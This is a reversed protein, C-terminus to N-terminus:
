RKYWWYECYTSKLNTANRTPNTVGIQTGEERSLVRGGQSRETDTYYWTSTDKFTVSTLNTCNYFARYSILTVGEGITVNKLNSCGSFASDGILTVSDPIIINTLGDCNYFVWDCIYIMSDPITVSTINTCNYFAGWTMEIVGDPITIDGTASPYAILITKGKSYLIKGDDSTSFNENNESVNFCTLNPCLRFQGQAISTVSEPITVSALSKCNTFAVNGISTVGNPIVISTINSCDLFTDNKIATLGTTNSFDLAIMASTNKKMTSAISSLTSSSMTGTVALKHEGAPLTSITNVIDSVYVTTPTIDVKVYAEHSGKVILTITYKRGVTLLGDDFTINGVNQSEELKFETNLATINAGGVQFEWSGNTFKFADYVDGYEDTGYYTYTFEYSNDDLSIHKWEGTEDITANGAIHTLDYCTPVKPAAYELDTPFSTTSPTMTMVDAGWVTMVYNDPDNIETGLAIVYPKYNTLNLTDSDTLMEGSANESNFWKIETKKLKSVDLLLEFTTDTVTAAVGTYYQYEDDVPYSGYVAYNGTQNTDAIKINGYSYLQYAQSSFNFDGYNKSAEVQEDTLFVVSFVPSKTSGGWAGSIDEINLKYSYVGETKILWKDNYKGSKFDAANQAPDTVDIEKTAGYTSTYYWNKTDEFTISALNDCDLFAYGYVCFVNEPIVVSTLNDCYAFANDAIYVVSESITIDGAASPYALLVYKNKDYLIKSDESTSYNENNETINITTLKDCDWFASQKIETVSDPITISTLNACEFFAEYDIKTVSEPIIISILNGCNQFAFDGISTLGTTGSLDLNIKASENDIMATRVAALIDSTMTGSVIIKYEYASLGAITEALKSADCNIDTKVQELKPYFHSNDEIKYPFVIPEEETDEDWKYWGTITYGAPITEPVFEALDELTIESNCKFTTENYYNGEEVAEYNEYFYVTADPAEVEKISTSQPLTLKVEEPIEGLLGASVIYSHCTTENYLEYVFSIDTDSCSYIRYGILDNFKREWLIKDKATDYAVIYPITDDLDGNVDYDTSGAYIVYKDEFVIDNFYSSLNRDKAPFTKPISDILTGTSVDIGIVCAERNDTLQNIFAGCLFINEDINKTIKEFSFNELIISEKKETGSTGDIFLVKTHNKDDDWTLIVYTDSSEHYILDYSWFTIPYESNEWLVKTSISTYSNITIEVLGIVTSIQDNMNYEPASYVYKEVLVCFTNDKKQVMSIPTAWNNEDGLYIDKYISLGEIGLVFASRINESSLKEGCILIYKGTDIGKRIMINRPNDKFIPTQEESIEGEPNIFTYYPLADDLACDANSYTQRGFLMYGDKSKKRTTFHGALLTKGPEQSLSIKWIKDRLVEDLFTKVNLIVEEGNYIFYYIYGKDTTDTESLSINKGADFIKYDALNNSFDLLYIGYEDQNLLTSSEGEPQLESNAYGLAIASPSLNEIIVINKNTNLVKPNIINITELKNESLDVISEGTGYPIMVKGLALYYTYYFVNGATNVDAKYSFNEGPKIETLLVTKLSDSFIKVMLDTKNVFKVNDKPDTVVPKNDDDTPKSTVPPTNDNNDVEGPNLTCGVNWFFVATLAIFLFIRKFIHM